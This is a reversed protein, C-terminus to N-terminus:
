SEEKVANENNEVQKKDDFSESEQKIQESTKEQNDVYLEILGKIKTEVEKCVREIEKIEDKKTEVQKELLFILSERSQHPRYENLIHHINILITRIHEIKTAFQDPAVSMVGVIELFNLLLSKLLRKLEEIKIKSDEEDNPINSEQYLQPIGMEKVNWLNGFSRYTDGSPPRPPILFELEKKDEPIHLEDDEVKHNNKIEKFQELNENTFFKYYAPPPPYLSSILSEEAM